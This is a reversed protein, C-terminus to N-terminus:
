HGAESDKRIIDVAGPRKFNAQYVGGSTVSIKGAPIWTESGGERISLDHRGPPLSVKALPDLTLRRKNVRVELYHFEHAAFTVSAPNKAKTQKARTHAAQAAAAPEARQIPAEAQQAQEPPQLSPSPPLGVAVPDPAGGRAEVSREDGSPDRPQTGTFGSATNIQREVVRKSLARFDTDIKAIGQTSFLPLASMIMGAGLALVSLAVVMMMHPRISRPAASEVLELAPKQSSEAVQTCVESSGLTGTPVSITRAGTQPWGSDASRENASATANAFLGSRPGDIGSHHRVIEALMQRAGPPTAWAGLIELAERASEIRETPDHELLGARLRLLPEPVNARTLPPVSGSAVAAFLKERPVDARFRRGDLLEQLVGGVAYLDVLPSRSEGLAQEPAMYRLKGQIHLGTSDESSLRAIGFDTLKVEGSVSALVNHPSIDRHVIAQRASGTHLEHSYSLASLLEGIIFSVVEFPLPSDTKACYRCLHALNLGDIWEMAMFCRPGEMGVSFVQVINSHSLMMSLRAEKLFMRRHRVSATLHPAILKLALTKSAGHASQRARWVEAMGGAGLREILDYSGFRPSLDLQEVSATDM